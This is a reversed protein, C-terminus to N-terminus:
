MGKCVANLVEQLSIMQDRGTHRNARPKGLIAEVYDVWNEQRAIYLPTEEKNNIVIM